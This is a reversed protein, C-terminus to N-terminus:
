ARATQTDPANRDNVCDGTGDAKCVGLALYRNDRWTAPELRGDETLRGEYVYTAFQCANGNRAKGETKDTRILHGEHRLDFIRGSLRTCGFLSIAEMSTITGHNKLHRLIQSKQANKRTM